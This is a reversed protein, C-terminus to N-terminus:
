GLRLLPGRQLHREQVPHGEPLLHQRCIKDNYEHEAMKRVAAVQSQNNLMTYQFGKLVATDKGIKAKAAIVKRLTTSSLM